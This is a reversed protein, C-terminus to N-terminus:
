KTNNKRRGGEEERDVGRGEGTFGEEIKVNEKYQSKV